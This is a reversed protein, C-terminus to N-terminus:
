NHDYLKAGTYQLFQNLVFFSPAGLQNRELPQDNGIGAKSNLSLPM